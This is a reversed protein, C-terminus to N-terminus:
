LSLERLPDSGDRDRAGEVLADSLGQLVESMRHVEIAYGLQPVADHWQVLIEGFGAEMFKPDGM